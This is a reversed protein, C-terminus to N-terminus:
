VDPYPDRTEKRWQHLREKLKTKAATYKPDSALNVKEDPDQAIHFLEEAPREVCCRQGPLQAIRQAWEFKENQDLGTPTSDLNEIYKWEKTRIARMPTFKVHYTVEAFVADHIESQDGRAAHLLSRGQATNPLPHKLAHLCTPLIDITSALADVSNGRPLGDPWRLILPTGIGRDYCTTKCGPYPPGNDSVFIVLTNDALAESELHGMIEGIIKDMGAAQSYYGAVDQRVEPWDPIQWYSPVKFSNPDVPFEPAMKFNGDSLRHTQMFNLELYFPSTKNASIFRRAMNSNKIKQFSMRRQYGYKKVSKFPAVHWKGQIGTHYGADSLIRPLTPIEPSMQYQRHRHTLGHVGVSHSAQGTIISARSASCTPATVFANTFRVGDCAIADINPTKIDNNGYCGLERWGLDDATILIINPMKESTNARGLMGGM